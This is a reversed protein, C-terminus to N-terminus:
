ALLPGLVFISTLLVALVFVTIAVFAFRKEFSFLFISIFVRAVPTALLILLGLDIIAYPKASVIGQFLPLLGILFKNHRSILASSDGIAYYGTNNKLFLLASGIAILVFSITVGFRLVNGIISSFDIEMEQQNEPMEKGV